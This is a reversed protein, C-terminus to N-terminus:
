VDRKPRHWSLVAKISHSGTFAHHFDWLRDSIRLLDTGFHPLAEVLGTLVGQEDLAPITPILHVRSAVRPFHSIALGSACAILRSPCVKSRLKSNQM